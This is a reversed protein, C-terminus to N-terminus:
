CSTKPLPAEISNNVIIHKDRHALYDNTVWAPAHDETTITRMPAILDCIKLFQSTFLEAANNSNTCELINSWDTSDIDQQFLAENILKNYNRCKVRTGTKPLKKKKRAVYTLCYEIIGPDYTGWQYYM